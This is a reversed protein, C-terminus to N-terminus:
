APPGGLGLVSVETIPISFEWVDYFRRILPATRARNDFHAVAAPHEARPQHLYGCDDIVVFLDDGTNFEDPLIRGEIFSSFRRCLDLLRRNQSLFYREDGIIFHVQNQRRRAVLSALLDHTAASNFVPLELRAGFMLVRQRARELLAALTEDLADRTETHIAQSTM